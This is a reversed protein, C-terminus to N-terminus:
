RSKLAHRLTDTIAGEFIRTGHGHLTELGAAALTCPLNGNMSLDMDFIFKVEPDQPAQPLTAKIRGPGAHIKAHCSNDLKLLFDCGCNLLSEEQVDPDALPGLYSSSFLESFPAHELALQRRSFTNIYRLGVRQFYAPKYLQIFSALAHDLHRAFTEWDSYKLTALSIFDRTLNLKWMGDASVFHYNVIPTQSELKANPTGFGSIKPAPAEEKRVYQPFAERITEQFDAPEINNITLITPFRLQCIVERLQSNPYHERPRDSFLM